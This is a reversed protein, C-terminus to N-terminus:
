SMTRLTSLLEADLAAFDRELVSRRPNIVVDYGPSISGRGHRLIERVRRRIRNREHAKGVKRPTTLGFRTTESQNPLSFVVFSRSSKKRGASYVARFQGANRLRSAKPFRLDTGTPSGGKETTSM